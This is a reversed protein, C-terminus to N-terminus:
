DSAGDDDFDGLDAGDIVNIVTLMILSVVM